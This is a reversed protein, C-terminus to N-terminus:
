PGPVRPAGNDDSRRGCLAYRNGTSVENYENSRRCDSNQPWAHTIFYKKEGWDAKKRGFYQAVDKVLYGSLKKELYAVLSRGHNMTLNVRATAWVLQKGKSLSLAFPSINFDHSKEARASSTSAHFRNPCCGTCKESNNTVLLM